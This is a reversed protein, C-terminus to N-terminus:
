RTSAFKKMQKAGAELDENSGVSGRKGLEAGVVIM